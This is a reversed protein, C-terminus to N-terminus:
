STLVETGPFMRELYTELDWLSKFRMTGFGEIRVNLWYQDVGSYDGISIAVNRELQESWHTETDGIDVQLQEYEARGKEYYSDPMSAGTSALMDGASWTM